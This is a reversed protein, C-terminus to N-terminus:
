AIFKKLETSRATETALQESRGALGPCRGLSYGLSHLRSHELLVKLNSAHAAVQQNRGRWSIVLLVSLIGMKCTLLTFSPAHLLGCSQCVTFSPGLDLFTNSKAVLGHWGIPPKTGSNQRTIEDDGYAGEWIRHEWDLPGSLEWLLGEEEARDQRSRQHKDDQLKRHTVWNNYM